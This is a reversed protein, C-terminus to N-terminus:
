QLFEEFKAIKENVEKIEPDDILDYEYLLYRIQTETYKYKMYLEDDIQVKLILIRFILFEQMNPDAQFQNMRQHFEKMKSALQNGYYKFIEKVKSKSPLDGEFSPKEYKFAKRELDYPSVKSMVNHLDEMQVGVHKKLVVSTATQYANEKVEFYEQCIQEYDPTGLAARRRDDIDPKLKKILEEAQKNTLAMIKIALEPTLVGKNDEAEQKIEELQNTIDDSVEGEENFTTYLYYLGGILGTIGIAALSYFAISYGKSNEKEM